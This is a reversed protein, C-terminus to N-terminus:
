VKKKMDGMCECVGHLDFEQKNPKDYQTMEKECAHIGYSEEGFM